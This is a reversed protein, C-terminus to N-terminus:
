DLGVIRFAASCPAQECPEDSADAMAAEAAPGGGPMVDNDLRATM